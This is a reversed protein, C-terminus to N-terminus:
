HVCTCRRLVSLNIVDGALDRRVDRPRISSYKFEEDNVLPVMLGAPRCVGTAMAAAGGTWM